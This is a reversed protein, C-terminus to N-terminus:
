EKGVTVRADYSADDPLTAAATGITYSDKLDDQLLSLYAAKNAKLLVETKDYTYAPANGVDSVTYGKDELFKKMKSGAGAVGGGNLVQLKLDGRNPLVPTPTPMPAPTPTPTPKAFFSMKPMGRVALFLGGGTVLAVVIVMIAWVALSKKNKEKYESIEPMVKPTNKQYLEDVVEKKESESPTENTETPKKESAEFETEETESESQDSALGEELEEVKEEIDKADEKIDSLPKTDVIDTVEEVVQTVVVPAEKAEAKTTKKRAAM